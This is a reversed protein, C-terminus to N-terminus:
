YAKKDGTLMRWVTLFMIQVDLGLSWNEIYWLDFEVRKEMEALNKTEGRYGSVQAWGTIGPKVLHRLMYKDIKDRSSINLPTPHPRPGVVSMDGKLVNIFQPLEDINTKRILRGLRTIRPDDKSAQIYNGDEDIDQSEVVMSRFKYAQFKKNDRGWREQKFFVPGKSTIKIVLAMFPVFWSLLFLTVLLSFIFDFSRKILRWHVENIRDQRVSLVPFPGFMSVHLRNSGFRFYDPIIKIRTTHNECIRVIEELKSYAYNPLAVIVNEIQSETLLRNLESIPGIYEGNMTEPKKDDLFGIAEYGFHPNRQISDFFRRGVDGAGIILLRQINKGKMRFRNLIKRIVFKFFSGSISITVCYFLIVSRPIEYQFIYIVVVLFIAQVLIVKSFLIIEYSSDRSRFEDYLKLTHATFLWSIILWFMLYLDSLSITSGGSGLQISLIFSIIIIGIDIAERIFLISNRQFLM